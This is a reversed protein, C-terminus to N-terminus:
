RLKRLYSIIFSYFLEKDHKNKFQYLVKSTLDLFDKQKQENVTSILVKTNEKIFSKTIYKYEGGYLVPYEKKTKM